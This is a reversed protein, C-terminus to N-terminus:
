GGFKEILAAKTMADADEHSMGQSAAYEVWTAKPDSRIPAITDRSMGSDGQGFRLILHRKHMEEAGSRSAGCKVAWAVWLAKAEKRGPMGPTVLKGVPLRRSVRERGTLHGWSRGFAISNVTTVSIDYDAAIATQTDGREFRFVIALVDVDSLKARHNGSGRQPLGVKRRQEAPKPVGRGARGVAAMRERVVAM